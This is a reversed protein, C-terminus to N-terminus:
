IIKKNMINKKFEKTKNNSIKYSNSKKLALMEKIFEKELKSLM